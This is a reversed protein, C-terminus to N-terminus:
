RGGPLREGHFAFADEWQVGSAQVHCQPQQKNKSSGDREHGERQLRPRDRRAAPPERRSARRLLGIEPQHVFRANENRCSLGLELIAYHFDPRRDIKGFDKRLFLPVVQKLFSMM